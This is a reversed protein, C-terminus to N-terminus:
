PLQSPKSVIIVDEIRDLKMLANKTISHEQVSCSLDYIFVILKDYEQTNNFYGISDEGIGKEVKSFGNKDYIFKAEILLRLSPIAFDPKYSNRGFKPLTEEDILDDFFARLILWLIDQVEREQTIQWKIPKKIKKDDDYRWRRMADEFRSLIASVFHRSILINDIDVTISESTAALILAVSETTANDIGQHVIQNLLKKRIQSPLNDQYTQFINRKLCYSILSIEELSHHSEIDEIFASKPNIFFTIYKYLLKQLGSIQQEKIVENIISNLWQLTTNKWVDDKIQKTGLILGLLTLPQNAYSVHNGKNLGNQKFIDLSNVFKESAFKSISSTHLSYGLSTIHYIRRENFTNNIWDETCIVNWKIKVETTNNLIHYSFLGYRNGPQNNELVIDTLKKLQHSIERGTVETM